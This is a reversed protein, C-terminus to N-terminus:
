EATDQRRDGSSTPASHHQPHPHHETHLDRSHPTARAQLGPSLQATGPLLSDLGDQRHSPAGNGPHTGGSLRPQSCETLAVTALSSGALTRPPGPHTNPSARPPGKLGGDASTVTSKTESLHGPTGLAWGAAPLQVEARRKAGPAGCRHEGSLPDLSHDAPQALHEQLVAGAPGCGWLRAGRQASPAAM